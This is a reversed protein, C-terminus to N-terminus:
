GLDIRGPLREAHVAVPRRVEVVPGETARDQVGEVRGDAVVPEDDLPRLDGAQPIM